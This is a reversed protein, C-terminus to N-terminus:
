DVEVLGSGFWRCSLILPTAQLIASLQLSVVVEDQDSLLPTVQLSQLRPEYRSVTVQVATVLCSLTKPWAQFIQQMDPLGYEPLYPYCSQRTNLLVHLHQKVQKLSTQWDILDPNDLLRPM